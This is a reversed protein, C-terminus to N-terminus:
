LILKMEDRNASMPCVLWAKYWDRFLDNNPTFFLQKIFSGYVLALIIMGM